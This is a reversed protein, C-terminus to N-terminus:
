ADKKVLLSAIKILIKNQNEVHKTLTSLIDALSEGESSQLSAALFELIDVGEEGDDDMGTMDIVDDAEAM